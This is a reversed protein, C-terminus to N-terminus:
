CGILISCVHSCIFSHAFLSIFPKWVSQHVSLMISWKINGLYCSMNSVHASCWFLPKFFFFLSQEESGVESFQSVVSDINEVLSTNSLFFYYYDISEVEILYCSGRSITPCNPFRLIMISCRQSGLQCSRFALCDM